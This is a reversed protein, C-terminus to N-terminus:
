KNYINNIAQKVDSESYLYYQILVLIDVDDEKQDVFLLYRDYKKIAKKIDDIDLIQYNIYDYCFRL